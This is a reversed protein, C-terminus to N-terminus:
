FTTENLIEVEVLKGLIVNEATKPHLIGQRGEYQSTGEAQTVLVPIPM